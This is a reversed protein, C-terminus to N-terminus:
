SVVSNAPAIPLRVTLVTGTSENTDMAINGRMAETVLKASYTGLGTGREKGATVYKGFFRDRIELPVAEANHVTVVTHDTTNAFSIHIIGHKPSSEAANRVLNGFLSYCLGREGLALYQGPALKSGDNATL